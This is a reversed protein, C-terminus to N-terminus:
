LSPMNPSQESNSLTQSLNGPYFPCDPITLRRVREDQCTDGCDSRRRISYQRRRSSDPHAAPVSSAFFSCITNVVRCTNRRSGFQFGVTIPYIHAVSARDAIVTARLSAGSRTMRSRPSGAPSPKRTRSRILPRVSRTAVGTMTSLARSRASLLIVHAPRRPPPRRGSVERYNHIRSRFEGLTPLFAQVTSM